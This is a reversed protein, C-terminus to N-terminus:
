GNLAERAGVLLPSRDVGGVGHHLDVERGNDWGIWRDREARQGSPGKRTAVPVLDHNQALYRDLRDDKSLAPHLAAIKVYLAAAWGECFADARARKRAMKCRKLASAIYDARAAKLRRRLSQFAYAAIEPAPGYGVFVRSDEGLFSKVSLAREVTRALVVEWYAPRVTASVPANAEGIEAMAVDDATVGHEDMLKRAKELALAAEHENDSASLALCKKIKALLDRDIM